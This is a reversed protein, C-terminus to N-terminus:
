RLFDDSLVHNYLELFTQARQSFDRYRKASKKLSKAQWRFSLIIKVGEVGFMTVISSAESFVVNGGSAIMIILSLLGNWLIKLGIKKILGKKGKKQEESKKYLEYSDVFDPWSDGRNDCWDALKEFNLSLNKIVNKLSQVNVDSPKNSVQNFLNRANRLSAHYKKFIPHFSVVQRDANELEEFFLKEALNTPKKTKRNKCQDYIKEELKMVADVLDFMRPPFVPTLYVDVWVLAVSAVNKQLEKDIIPNADENLVLIGTIKEALSPEKIYYKLTFFSIVIYFPHLLIWKWYAWRNYYATAIFVMSRIKFPGYVTVRESHRKGIEALKYFIPDRITGGLSKIPM